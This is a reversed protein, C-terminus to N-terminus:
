VSSRELWQIVEGKPFWLRGRIRKHPMGCQQVWKYVTRKKYQHKLLALLQDMTILNDFLLEGM